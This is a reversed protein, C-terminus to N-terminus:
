CTKATQMSSGPTELIKWFLKWWALLHLFITGKTVMTIEVYGVCGKLISQLYSLFVVNAQNNELVPWWRIALNALSHVM